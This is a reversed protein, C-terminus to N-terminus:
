TPQPSLRGCRPWYQNCQLLRAPNMLRVQTVAHFSVLGGEGTTHLVAQLVAVQAVVGVVVVERGQQCPQRSEWQLLQLQLQRPPWQPLQLQLSQGM